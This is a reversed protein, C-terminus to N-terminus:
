PADMEDSNPWYDDSIWSLETTVAAASAPGVSLTWFGTAAANLRLTSGASVMLTTNPASPQWGVPSFSGTASSTSTTLAGVTLRLTVRQEIRRIAATLSAASSPKPLWTTPVVCWGTDRGDLYITSSRLLAAFTWNGFTRDLVWVEGVRPLRLRMPVVPVEFTDTPLSVQSSSGYMRVQATNRSPILATVIVQRTNFQTAFNSM